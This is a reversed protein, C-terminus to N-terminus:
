NKYKIIYQSFQLTHHLTQLIEMQPPVVRRKPTHDYQEFFKPPIYVANGIFVICLFFKKSQHNLSTKDLQSLIISFLNSLLINPGLLPSCVPPQLFNRRWSSWSKVQASFITNLTPPSPLSIAPCTAHVSIRSLYYINFQPFNLYRFLHPVVLKFLSGSFYKTINQAPSSLEINIQRCAKSLTTIFM